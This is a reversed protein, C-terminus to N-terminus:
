IALQPFLIVCKVRHVTDWGPGACSRWRQHVDPNRKFFPCALRLHLTPKALSNASKRPRKGPDNGRGDYPSESGDEERIHRKGVINPQSTTSTSSPQTAQSSGHSSSSNTCSTFNDNSDFLKQVESKINRLVKMGFTFLYPSSSSNRELPNTEESYDTVESILDDADGEESVILTDSDVSSSENSVSRKVFSTSDFLRGPIGYYEESAAAYDTHCRRPLNMDPDSSRKVNELWYKAKQKSAYKPLQPVIPENGTSTTYVLRESLTTHGKASAAPLMQLSTNSSNGRAFSDSQSVEANDSSQIIIYTDEEAADEQKTYHNLLESDQYALKEIGSMSIGAPRATSCEEEWIRRQGQMAQHWRKM